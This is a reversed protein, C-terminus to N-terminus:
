GRMKRARREAAERKREEEPREEYIAKATERDEEDIEEWWRAKTSDPIVRDDGIIEKYLGENTKRLGDIEEFVAEKNGLVAYLELMWTSANEIRAATRPDRGAEKTAQLKAKAVKGRIAKAYRGRDVDETIEELREQAAILQEPTAEALDELEITRALDWIEPHERRVRANREPTGYAIKKPLRRGHCIDCYYTEGEEESFEYTFIAGPRPNGPYSVDSQLDFPRPTPDQAPPGAPDDPPPRTDMGNHFIEFEEAMEAIIAPSPVAAKGEIEPM